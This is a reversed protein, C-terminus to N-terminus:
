WRPSNTRPPRKNTDKNQPKAENVTIARGQIEKGNAGSIAKIADGSNDMEIFGFGRSQGTFRDTIIKASVVKGYESFTDKLEDEQVNFALNGVYLNM